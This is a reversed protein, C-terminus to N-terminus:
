DDYKAHKSSKEGDGGKRKALIQTIQQLERDLKMKDKRAGGMPGAAKTTRTKRGETMKVGYQFAAKPMAEKQDMYEAYEEHTEFDWRNLPGKKKGTDMKSLDEEEDSDVIADDNEPMGPYCESYYDEQQTLKALRDKFRGDKPDKSTLANKLLADSQEAELTKPGKDEPEDKFYRPRAEQKEDRGRDRKDDRRTDNERDRRRRDSQRHRRHDRDDRDRDDRERRKEKSPNYDGVDDFISVDSDKPKRPEKNSDPRPQNEEKEELGVRKKNKRISLGSRLYGLIQTLKNIVIDNTTLSTSALGMEPCDQKSRILATPIDSEGEDLEIVYAMRQPLFLENREVKTSNQAFLLRNINKAMATRFQLKGQEEVEEKARKDQSQKEEQEVRLAEEFDVEEKLEIESRVKQLLAYDLGKVLHTHEMDGGLFKSEQIQQKRREAANLNSKLDPAVAHYGANATIAEDDVGQGDRREKARDRYKSALEALKDDEQKRLNAYFQKKKKRDIQSASAPTKPAPMSATTSRETGPRGAGTAGSRPTMMLKRFDANTMNRVSAESAVPLGPPAMPNSYEM